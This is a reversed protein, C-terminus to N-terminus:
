FGKKAMVPIDIDGGYQTVLSVEYKAPEMDEWDGSDFEFGDSPLDMQAQARAIAELPSIYLDNARGNYYQKNELRDEYDIFMEKHQRIFKGTKANFIVKWEDGNANVVEVHYQAARFHETERDADIAFTGPIRATAQMIADQVSMKDSGVPKGTHSEGNSSNGNGGSIDSNGGTMDGGTMIKKCKIKDDDHHCSYGPKARIPTNQDIECEIDNDGIEIECKFKPPNFYQDGNQTIEFASASTASFLSGVLVTLLAPNLIHKMHVEISKQNKNKRSCKTRELCVLM